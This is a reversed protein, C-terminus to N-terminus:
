DDPSASEVDREYIWGAGLPDAFARPDDVHAAVLPGRADNHEVDEPDPVTFQVTPDDDDRDFEITATEFARDVLDTEVSVGSVDAREIREQPEDLLTDYAVLVGDYCRYELTGYRLYRTIARVTGFALAVALPVVVLPPEFVVFAAVVVYCFAIPSTLTYRVGRYLADAVAVSRPPRARVVPEGDPEAVPEPEIETEKSGYLRYFIGRKDPDREVQITRLDYGLKGALVLALVAGSDLGVSGVALMLTGVGFVYKFPVLVVSRPSHTRYGGRQFYDTATEVGRAAFVGVGGLLLQGTTETTITPDSLGFVFFAAGLEIPALITVLVALTPLNRLYVPPLPGRLDIAGRKAQLPGVLRQDSMLNNPRKTAFPVKVASWWLVAALELVFVGLLVTTSWGLALVGVPAVANAAVVALPGPRGVAPVRM